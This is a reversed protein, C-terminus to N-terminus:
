RDAVADIEICRVCTCWPSSALTRLGGARSRAATQWLLSGQATPDATTPRCASPTLGDGRGRLWRRGAPTGRARARARAGGTAPLMGRGGGGAAGGGSTPASTSTQRRPPLSRGSEDVTITVTAVDSVGGINDDSAQYTFSDTGAFAPEPDYTFSGDANLVATGNPPATVLAATVPDGNPDADNGSVGPAAVRGQRRYFDGSSYPAVEALLVSM